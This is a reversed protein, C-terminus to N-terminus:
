HPERFPSEEVIDVAQSWEHLDTTGGRRVLAIAVALAPKGVAFPESEPDLVTRVKWRPEPVETFVPQERKDGTALALGSDLNQFVWVHMSLLEEGKAPGMACPGATGAPPAEAAPFRSERSLMPDFRVM